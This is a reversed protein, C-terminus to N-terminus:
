GKTSTNLNYMNDFLISICIVAFSDSNDIYMIDTTICLYRMYM